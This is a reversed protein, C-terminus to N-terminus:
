NALPQTVFAQTAAGDAIRYIAFQRYTLGRLEFILNAHGDGRTDVADILSLRPTVDLDSQSTVQKLLVQPTGYFDPQAILTVYKVPTSATQATLVMTAGGGFSLGFVRFEEDALMPMQPAVPRAKHRASSTKTAPPTSPLPPALAKEAILELDHKMKMEDDPNAWSYAYSETDNGRVDSIGVVQKMDLPVGTLADPQDIKEQSAPASYELRPRNPDIAVGAQPTSSAATDSAARRHFTPRDPDVDPESASSSGSSSADSGSGGAPRDHLTPRDPDIPPPAAQATQAPAGNSTDGAPVHAFHPKDPDANASVDGVVYPMHKSNPLRAIVPRPAHYHGVGIWRGGLQEAESIDFLGKSRGDSELEYETGTLVALPAPEALYLGGPQYQTGDWVAIPVLRAARPHALDGTYELVATARLHVTNPQQNTDVRGPYQACAPLACSVALAAAAFRVAIRVAPQGPVVPISVLSM